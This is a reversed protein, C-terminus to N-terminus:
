EMGIYAHVRARERTRARVRVCVCLCVTYVYTDTEVFRTDGGEGGMVDITRLSVVGRRSCVSETRKRKDM